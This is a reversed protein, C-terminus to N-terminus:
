SEDDDVYASAGLESSFRWAESSRLAAAYAAIQPEVVLGDSRVLVADATRVFQILMAGFKADLRRVDVLARVDRARGSESRIEIRNGDAPGWSQVDSPSADSPPTIGGLRRQYDTPLAHSTWSHADARPSSGPADPSSLARRPVVHFEVQWPAMVDVTRPLAGLALSTFQFTTSSSRQRELM